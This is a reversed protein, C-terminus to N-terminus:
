VGIWLISLKHNRLEYSTLPPIMKQMDGHGEGKDSEERACSEGAM